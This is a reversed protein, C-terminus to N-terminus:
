TGTSQLPVELIKVSFFIFINGTKFLLNFNLSFEEHFHINYLYYSYITIQESHERCCLLFSQM